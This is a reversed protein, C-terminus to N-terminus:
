STTQMIVYKINVIGIYKIKGADGIAGLSENQVLHLCSRNSTKDITHCCEVQVIDIYNSITTIDNELNLKNNFTIFFCSIIILMNIIIIVVVIIIIM